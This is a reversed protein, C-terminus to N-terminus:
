QYIVHKKVGDTKYYQLIGCSAFFLVLGNTIQGLFVESFAIICCRDTVVCCVCELGM